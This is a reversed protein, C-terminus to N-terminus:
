RRRRVVAYTIIFGITCWAEVVAIPLGQGDTEVDMLTSGTLEAMYEM